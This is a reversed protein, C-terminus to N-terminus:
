ARGSGDVLISHREGTKTAGDGIAKQFKSNEIITNVLMSNACGEFAGFSPEKRM